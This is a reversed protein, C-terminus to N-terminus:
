SKGTVASYIVYQGLQFSGEGGRRQFGRAEDERAFDHGERGLCHIAEAGVDERRFRNRFDEGRFSAGGIVRQDRVDGIQRLECREDRM